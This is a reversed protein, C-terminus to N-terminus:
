KQICVLWDDNFSAAGLWKGLTPRALSEQKYPVVTTAEKKRRPDWIRATGDESASLIKGGSNINFLTIYFL